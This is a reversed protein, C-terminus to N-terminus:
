VNGQELITAEDPSLDNILQALQARNPATMTKDGLRKLQNLTSNLMWAAPAKAQMRRGLAAAENWDGTLAALELATALEWYDVPEDSIRDMILERVRPVLQALERQEADGDSLSLLQILNIAPYYDTPQKEFGARYSDIARKLDARERTQSFRDKYIRGLIGFSEGDGGTAAVLRNMMAIAREQDQPLGRRNLALAVIQIVEPSDRLSPDVDDAFRIVNDWDSLDRYRKLVDLIAVPDINPDGKVVEEAERLESKSRKSPRKATLKERVERPYSRLQAGFNDPLGVEIQPFFEFVPSDSRAIGQKITAALTDRIRTAESDDLQGVQNLSYFLIRAYSIDYAPRTTMSSVLVTAGRRLAHRIGLEYMVNPNATTLDAIFLDCGIVAELLTKHVIAGFELEDGRVPTLGAEIVAPSIASQYIHDFDITGGSERNEKRGFPMSVYCTKPTMLGRLRYYNLEPCRVAEAHPQIL